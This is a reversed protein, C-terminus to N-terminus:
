RFSVFSWGKQDAVMNLATEMLRRGLGYRGRLYLIPGYYYILQHFDDSKWRHETLNLGKKFAAKEWARLVQWMSDFDQSAGHAEIEWFYTFAREVHKAAAYRRIQRCAAITRKTRGAWCLRSLFGEYCRITEANWESRFLNPIEAMDNAVLIGHLHCVVGIDFCGFGPWDDEASRKNGIHLSITWQAV